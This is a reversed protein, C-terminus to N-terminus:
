SRCCCVVAIAYRFDLFRRCLGTRGTHLIVFYGRRDSIGEASDGFLRKSYFNRRLIRRDTRLPKGAIMSTYIELSQSGFFVSSDWNVGNTGPREGEFFPDATIASYYNLFALQFILCNGYDVPM